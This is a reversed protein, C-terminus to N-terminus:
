LLNVKFHEIISQEVEPLTKKSFFHDTSYSEHIVPYNFNYQKLYEKIDKAMQYSPWIHDNKASVLLISGNIKEFKFQAKNVQRQNELAKSARTIVPSKEKRAFTLTDVAKNM